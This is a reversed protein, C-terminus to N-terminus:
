IIILNYDLKDHKEKFVYSENSRFLPRLLSMFIAKITQHRVLVKSSVETVLKVAREVSQSHAPLRPVELGAPNALGEELQRDTLHTTTTPERAINDTDVLDQWKDVNFNIDPIRFDHPLANKRFRLLDYLLIVM